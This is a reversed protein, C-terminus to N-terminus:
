KGPQNASQVAVAYGSRTLTVFHNRGAPQWASWLGDPWQVRIEAGENGGLGFHQWGSQGSAHGGGIVVEQRWIEDEARVEIWAGIANVNGGDQRLAVQLWGGSGASRNHLIEVNARRNVVVIDLRGDLDLDVLAAGRSRAMNGVGASLGVERFSGDTQRLLLNNPDEIAGEEM